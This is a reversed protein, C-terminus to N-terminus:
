RRREATGELTTLRGESMSAPEAEVERLQALMACLIPTTIGHAAAAALVPAYLAPIETPRGRVAIDRWVGSRDKTQTRLWAVLHDTAADADATGAPAAYAAPVFADFRELRIGQAASVAFVERALRHMLPRHQDVLDAMPADALATATLMAGFGLKSWLYGAVNGTAVAPGWAQLDSVLEAVRRSGRGDLEGVALAGSGGDRIVGPGVVDAFLDVFAGVTRQAGVHAAIRDGNLGNQMSVVFGENHLHDALWAAATDTAHAKVALVVRDFPGSVEAPTYAPLAVTDDHGPRLLRLGHARIAAVHDTDTDVLTVLHGARALHFALTGGIAGAGVVTYARPADSSM